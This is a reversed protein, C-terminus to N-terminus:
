DFWVKEITGFSYVIREGDPRWAFTPETEYSSERKFRVIRKPEDADLSRTYLSWACSSRECLGPTFHNESPGSRVQEIRPGARQIADDDRLEQPEVVRWERVNRELFFALFDGQTVNLGAERWLTNAIQAHNENLEFAAATEIKDKPFALRRNSFVSGTGVCPELFRVPLPSKEWRRWCYQMIDEALAFPTSFQGTRNRLKLGMELDLRAQARQRRDETQALTFM